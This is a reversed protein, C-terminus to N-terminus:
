RIDAVPRSGGTAYSFARVPRGAALAAIASAMVTDQSLYRDDLQYLSLEREWDPLRPAILERRELLLKLADIANRKSRANTEFPEVTVALFQILPDGVGNSEVITRGPYARHRAEIARAQDPYNMRQHREYAVVRYPATSTDITFGVTADQKRAIDWANVYRHGPEPPLLAPMRWLEAIDAPDFVAAGSTLFDVAYEQAFQEATLNDEAMKHAPWDPDKRWEPHVHWPLFYASWASDGMQAAQWLRWFLNARGNASSLAILTGGTEALTPMVATHIDDAYEQWAMEDLVVLTAPIGRGAGKTAAQTHVAGGNAFGLATLNDRTLPPHPARSIAVVVYKLFREAQDGDRSVVVATGGRLAEFAVRFAVAQSIGIQRSKAVIIRKAPDRLLDDQYDRAVDAYAYTEGAATRLLAHRHAWELPTLPPQQRQRHKHRLRLEAEALDLRTPRRTTTTM